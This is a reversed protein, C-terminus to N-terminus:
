VPALPMLRIINYRGRTDPDQASDIRSMRELSQKAKSFTSDTIGKAKAKKELDQQNMQGGAAKLTELLFDEAQKVKTPQHQGWVEEGGLQHVPFDNVVYLILGDTYNGTITLKKEKSPLLPEIWHHPKFRIATNVWRDFVSSGAGVGVTNKGEHHVILVAIHWVKILEDVRKIWVKMTDDQNETCQFCKYRCDLILLDVPHGAGSQVELIENMKKFGAMTDLLPIDEGFLSLKRFNPPTERIGLKDKIALIREELMDDAIEFNMYFVSIPQKVLIELFPMGTACCLGIQVALQSKGIKAGGYLCAKSKRMLVGNGLIPIGPPAPNRRIDAIDKGLYLKTRTEEALEEPTEPETRVEPRVLTAVDSM